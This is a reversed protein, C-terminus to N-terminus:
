FDSSKGFEGVVEILGVIHQNFEALDEAPVWWETHYDKGVCHITYRNMFAEDVEFRTVYGKGFDTINWQTLEVAYQENTVPYFIPQEPLRPPWARYGSQAVLDLEAQGTPRYMIITSM